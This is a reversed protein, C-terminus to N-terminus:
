KKKPAQPEPPPTIHRLFEGTQRDTTWVHHCGECTYYNVHAIKNTADLTRTTPRHCVPCPQVPMPRRSYSLRAVGGM